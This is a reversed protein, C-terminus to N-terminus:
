LLVQVADGRTLGLTAAASGLHVAIELYDASGFLVISSGPAADAYTRSLEIWTYKGARFERPKSDSITARRVNTILNGFRDVHIIEGRIVGTSLREPTPLDLTVLKSTVPGLESFPTGSALAAAVPAFIDRGHFTASITKLMVAPNTIVRAELIPMNRSVLTLLGNDPCVVIFHAFRAAIANRSAGVGPDIVAFHIADEPFHPLAAALFLAGERIDGAAIEHSLDVIRADPCRSLIVGKVSAMYPDRSGFDTTLTILRSM